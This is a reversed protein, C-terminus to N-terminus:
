FDRRTSLCIERIKEAGYLVHGKVNVAILVSAIGEAITYPTVVGGNLKSHYTSTM